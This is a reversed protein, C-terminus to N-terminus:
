CFMEAMSCKAALATSPKCGSETETLPDLAGVLHYLPMSPKPQRLTYRDLYEGTSGRRHEIVALRDFVVQQHLDMGGQIREEARLLIAGTDSQFAIERAAVLAFLREVRVM